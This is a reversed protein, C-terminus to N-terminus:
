EVVAIKGVVSEVGDSTAAFVLYVGTAARRGNYDRVNWTTTGGNAQTQWILKGSIDTIKVTANTALGNIGVSGNFNNTVPNPFIQVTQFVSNSETADSRYSVIGKDTAFFVEGTKHNIAIDRVVNSLIPSNDTTFNYIMVEGTANFLWVGRETGMWKRNGGDIAIATVKDDRLLFRSEYIPKVAEGSPEFFYAVGIDTGVWVLGDHDVAISRVNKSPLAGSGSADTIYEYGKSTRDYVYIGGGQAPNAIMWVYNSFDVALDVPYRAAVVPAAFSEWTNDTKLLHLSNVAGYNGVWLGDSSNALATINVFKGPSNLNVLPSNGANFIDVTGDTRQRELGEGFSAFYSNGSPDVVVDTIDTLSTSQARWIGDTFEDAVGANNLRVFASTYGGAIAYISGDAYALRFANTQSPGNPLYSQFIGNADSLLGNVNDGIWLKGNEEIAFLPDDIKENTVETITNGANIKWLKNAAGALLNNASANLFTFTEGTLYSEIAWTGSSSNYSFLGSNNIAAYIKDNFAAVAEIAGSFTGTNYRKYNNFDLLNDDLDGALVGKDTALYISDGRFTTANIKLTEGGAGLDRWTEKVEARALDFVVVGFDASLYALGEHIAIHNISKTGTISTTQTPDLAKIANGKIVDIKGDEYAILLQETTNDYQIFTVTTGSLGSMKSYSTISNDDRDLVMVGNSTAGFIYDDDLAISKISNYSIHVRWSGIPIQQAFSDFALLLFYPALLLPYSTLLKRFSSITKQFITYVCFRIM